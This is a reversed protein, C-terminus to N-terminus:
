EKIDNRRSEWRVGRVSEHERCNRELDGGNRDEKTASGLM